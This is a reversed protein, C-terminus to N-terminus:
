LMPIWIFYFDNKVFTQSFNKVVLKWQEERRYRVLRKRWRIFSDTEGGLRFMKTLSIDRMHHVKIMVNFLIYAPGVLTIVPDTSFLLWARFHPVKRQLLTDDGLVHWSRSLWSSLSTSFYNLLCYATPFISNLFNKNAGISFFFWITLWIRVM